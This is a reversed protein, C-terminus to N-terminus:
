KQRRITVRVWCYGFSRGDKHATPRCYSDSQGHCLCTSSKYPSKQWESRAPINFTKHTSKSQSSSGAPPWSQQACLSDFVPKKLDWASSYDTHQSHCARIFLGRYQPQLAIEWNAAPFPQLQILHQYVISTLFRIFCLMCKWIEGENAFLYLVLQIQM